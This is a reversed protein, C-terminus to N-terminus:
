EEEPQGWVNWFPNSYNLTIDRSLGDLNAFLTRFNIGLAYLDLLMQPKAKFPIVYRYLNDPQGVFLDMLSPGDRPTPHITFVGVQATIRPFSLVPYFAIPSTVPQKLELKQVLKETDTYLPEEALYRLGKNKASIPFGEYGTSILNLKQPYIRWIEADEKLHDNVAFFTAVLISETWDLLRTPTGYHQMLVLWQLHDSPNPYATGLSPTLRKFEEIIQNEPDGSSSLHLPSYIVQRFIKPTLDNHIRSHGRFWNFKFKLGYSIIEELTNFTKIKM